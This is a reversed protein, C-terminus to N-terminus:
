VLAQHRFGHLEISQGFLPVSPPALTGTHTYTHTHTHTHTHTDNYAHTCAHVDAM